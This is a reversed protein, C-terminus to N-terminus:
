DNSREGHTLTGKIASSALKPWYGVLTVACDFHSVTELFKTAERRALATTVPALLDIDDEPNSYHNTITSLIESKFIRCVDFNDRQDGTLHYLALGTFTALALWGSHILKRFGLM